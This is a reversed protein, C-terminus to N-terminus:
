IFSFFASLGRKRYLGAVARRDSPSRRGSGVREGIADRAAKCGVRGWAPAWRWGEWGLGAVPRKRRRGERRGWRPVRRLPNPRATEAQAEEAADGEAAPRPSRELAAEESSRHRWADAGLEAGGRAGGTIFPPFCNPANPATVSSFALSSKDWRLFFVMGSTALGTIELRNLGCFSTSKM